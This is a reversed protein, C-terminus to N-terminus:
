LEGGPAKPVFSTAPCRSLWAVPHSRIKGNSETIDAWNVDERFRLFVGATGKYLGDALVVQDGSSFAGANRSLAPGGVSLPELALAATLITRM